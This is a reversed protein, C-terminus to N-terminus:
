FEPGAIDGGVAAPLLLSGTAVAVGVCVEEALHVDPLVALQAVDETRALRDVAKAVAPDLPEVTWIKMPAIGDAPRTSRNM